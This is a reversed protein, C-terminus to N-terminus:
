IGTYRVIAYPRKALVGATANAYDEVYGKAEPAVGIVMFKTPVIQDIVRGNDTSAGDQVSEAYLYFVNAGGNAGDLEPADEVRINPYTQKLWEEVSTTGLSNTVGLYDVRNTSIALVIPVKKPNINGKSKTRLAAVGARIAGSIVEFTAGVWSGGPSSVYAPLSPDNLFGYTRGDGDNYGYFGVRNRAIELSLSAASRKAGASDIRVRAARLEELKGVRIGQEFRVITRREFSPNWSALPVNSLDQYPVATGTPELVGQVVEEDEFAGATTIGVLIDINRAATIAHVFGPLWEQLFQLPTAMSGVNLTPQLSDLGLGPLGMGDIMRRVDSADFCIGIRALERCAATTIDNKTLVLPAFGRGAVHSHITSTKM